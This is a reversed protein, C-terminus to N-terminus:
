KLRLPIRELYLDPLADQAGLNCGAPAALTLLRGGDIEAIIHEGEEIV